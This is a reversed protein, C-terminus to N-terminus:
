REDHSGDERRDNLLVAATTNDKGPQIEEYFAIQDNPKKKRTSVTRLAKQVLKHAIRKASTKRTVAFIQEDSLCDTVGDSFLLIADYSDNPIAVANPTVNLRSGGLSNTIRNSIKAFRMDDKKEILGHEYFAQADSDDTSIQQFRKGEVIYARSDGINVIWTYRDAVIACVFTTEAGDGLANIKKNIIDLRRYLELYLLDKDRFIQPDLHDFWIKMENVCIYSAREGSLGGGVGDAVVMMKYKQNAKHKMILVADEQNDRYKGISTSAGLDSDVSIDGEVKKPPLDPDRDPSTYGTIMSCLRKVNDRYIVLNGIRM